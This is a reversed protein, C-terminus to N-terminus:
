KQRCASCVSGAHRAERVALAVSGTGVMADRANIALNLLVQEVQVPDAKVAPVEAGLDVSIEITSPLTPRLLKAAEGVLQPLSLLRPEGRRGRSFTLMQQILERARQSSIQARELARALKADGLAETREAALTLNGLVSQLINNFDHAIGGTLHGI